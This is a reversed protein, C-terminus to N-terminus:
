SLTGQCVEGSKQGCIILGPHHTQPVLLLLQRDKAMEGRVVNKRRSAKETLSTFQTFSTWSHSLDRSGDVNWYDDIRSEQM